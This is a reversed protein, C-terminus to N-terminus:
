EPVVVRAVRGGVREVEDRVAQVATEMSAGEVEANLFVEKEDISTEALGEGFISTLRASQQWTLREALVLTFRYSAM